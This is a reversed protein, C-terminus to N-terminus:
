YCYHVGIKSFFPFLTKRQSLHFLAKDKPSPCKVLNSPLGIVHCFYTKSIVGFCKPISKFTELCEKESIMGECYKSEFENLSVLEQSKSLFFIDANKTVKVFYASIEFTYLRKYFAIEERLIEAPDSLETGDDIKLKTIVKKIITEANWTLFYKTNKEGQEVWRAKSRLIVGSTKTEILNELERKKENLTEKTNDLPCNSFDRELTTFFM